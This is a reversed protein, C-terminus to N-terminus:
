GTALGDTQRATQGNMQRDMLGGIWRGTQRGTQGGTEGDAWDDTQSAMLSVKTGDTWSQGDPRWRLRNNVTM